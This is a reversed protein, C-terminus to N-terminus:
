LTDKRPSVPASSLVPPVPDYGMGGWPHCRCIRKAAYFSGRGLGHTALAELAYTSCSPLFRCRVGLVRLWPSLILQYFGIMGSLLALTIHNLRPM